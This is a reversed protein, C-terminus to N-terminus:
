PRQEQMAKEIQQRLRKAANFRVFSNQDRSLSVVCVMRDGLYIKNHKAARVHWGVGYRIAAEDLVERQEKSLAPCHQSKQARNM